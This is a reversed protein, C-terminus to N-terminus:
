KFNIQDICRKPSENIEHESFRFIRFGNEKLIKNQRKDRVKVEPRNHWYDGDCYIAIKNRLLFDVITVGFLPVQKQYDINRRRLEEEIKLEISTNRYKRFPNNVHWERNKRKAEETHNKGKMPSPKGKHSKSLNKRWSLSFPPRSKGKLKGKNSKGIKLRWELSLTMGKKSKSIKARVDPRKAPNKNGKMSESKRKRLEPSLNPHSGKIKESQRRVSENTEKTLGTNWIRIEGTLIKRRLTMGIKKNIPEPRNLAIIRMKERHEKSRMIQKHKMRSKKSLLRRINEPYFGNKMAEWYCKYSCFKAKKKRSFPVLFEKHCNQCILKVKM